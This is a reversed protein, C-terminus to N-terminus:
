FPPFWFGDKGDVSAFCTDDDFVSAVFTVSNENVLDNNNATEDLLAATADGEFFWSGELSTTDSPADLCFDSSIEGVLLQRSYFRVNDLRGSWGYHLNPEARYGGIFAEATSDKIDTIAGTETGISAGNVYVEIKSASADFTLTFHVWTDLNLTYDIGTLEEQGGAANRVQWNFNEDDPDFAFRYSKETGSDAWKCLICYQGDPPTADDMFVWAMITIDGTPSMSASDSMSLMIDVVSQNDMDASQTGDTGAYTIGVSFFIAISILIPIIKRM